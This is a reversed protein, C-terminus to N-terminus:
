PVEAAPMSSSILSQDSVLRLEARRSHFWATLNNLKAITLWCGAHEATTLLCFFDDLKIKEKVLSFFFMM